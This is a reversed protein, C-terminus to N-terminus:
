LGLAADTPQRGRLERTQQGEGHSWVCPGPHYPRYLCAACDTAGKFHRPREGVEGITVGIRACEDHPQTQFVLGQGKIGEPRSDGPGKDVEGKFAATEEDLATLSQDACRRNGPHGGLNGVETGRCRHQM